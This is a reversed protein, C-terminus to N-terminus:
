HRQDSVTTRDLLGPGGLTGVLHRQRRHLCIRHGLCQAVEGHGYKRGTETKTLESPLRGRTRSARIGDIYLQRTNGLATPAAASWLNRKADALKWGSIRIGGSIIAPPGTKLATYTVGSDEPGLKLPETLRYVGGALMISSIKQARALDRAHTLTRVPQAATGPNADIGSPSVYLQAHAALSAVASLLMIRLKM